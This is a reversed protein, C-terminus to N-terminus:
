RIKDLGPWKLDRRAVPRLGRRRALSPLRCTEPEAAIYPPGNILEAHCRQGNRMVFIAGINAPHRKLRASFFMECRMLTESAASPPSKKWATRAKKWAGGHPRWG